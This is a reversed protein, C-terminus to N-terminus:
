IFAVPQMQTLINKRLMDPDALPDSEDSLLRGRPSPISLRTKLAPVERAWAPVSEIKKPGARWRDLDDHHWFPPAERPLGLEINANFARILLYPITALVAYRVPDDYDRPDELDSVAWEHRNWFREIETRLWLDQGAVLALYIRFLASLPTDPVYFFGRIRSVVEKDNLIKQVSPLM